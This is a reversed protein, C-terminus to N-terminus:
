PLEPFVVIEGECHLIAERCKKAYKEDKSDSLYKVAWFLDPTRVLAIRNKKAAVMCKRTFFDNRINLEQLRYANGFLIGKAIKGVDERSYDDLIRIELQRLKEFGIAENDQGAVEGFFRGQEGQFAVDLGPETGTSKSFEFGLLKLGNLIADELATGKEYLLRKYRGENIIDLKIKEKEQRINELQSEIKLLDKKLKIVSPLDFLPDELWNLTPISEPSQESIKEILGPKQGPSNSDTVPSPHLTKDIEMISKVFKQGFSIDRNSNLFPLLIITGNSSKNQAYAGVIKEDETLLLPGSLKENITVKYESLDSFEKWYNDIIDADRTLTMSKGSINVPNLKLPIVDYNKYIEFLRTVKKNSDTESYKREGSDIYIEQLENLIIIITRNSNFADLIERRWHDAQEKFKLYYSKSLAPKDKFTDDTLEYYSSIDPFFIIIDWDLLSVKSDFGTNEVDDNAVDFGITLIKKGSM